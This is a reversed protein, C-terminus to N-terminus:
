RRWTTAVMSGVAEPLPRDELLRWGGESIATEQYVEDDFPFGGRTVVVLRNGPWLRVFRDAGGPRPPMVVLLTRDVYETLTSEDGQAVPFWLDGSGSWSWNDFAAVEGGRDHILRAWYGSAAGVEVVAHGALEDILRTDPCAYSYRTNLAARADVRKDRASEPFARIRDM